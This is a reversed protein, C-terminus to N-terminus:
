LVPLGKDDPHLVGVLIPPPVPITSHIPRWLHLTHPHNNVYQSAPPHYQVVVDEPEWFISKVRCMEAWSPCRNPASVSVHEWGHGDSAIIWLGAPRGHKGVGRRGRRFPIFFAGNNGDAETSALAGTRLRNDNPVRFSM